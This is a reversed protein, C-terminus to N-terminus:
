GSGLFAPDGGSNNLQTRSPLTLLQRVHWRKKVEEVPQIDNDHLPTLSQGDVYPKDMVDVITYVAKQGITGETKNVKDNSDLRRKTEVGKKM